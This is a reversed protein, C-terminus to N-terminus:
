TTVKAAIEACYRKVTATSIEFHDATAKISAGHEARWSVVTAPDTAKSRGVYRGDDAAKAVEIGRKQMEKRNLYDAEGQAAIFALVADRTAKDIANTATGDFTMGNLTCIVKVGMRMLEQMVLNLEDYRRSIRDLWRVYLVGGDSLKDMVRRWEARDMPAVHYGGTAEDVHVDKAKVAQKKADDYQSASTQGDNTSTRGYYITKM